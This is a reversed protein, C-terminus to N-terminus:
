SAARFLPRVPARRVWKRWPSSPFSWARRECAGDHHPRFRRRPCFARRAGREGHCYPGFARIRCVVPRMGRRTRHVRRHPDGQLYQGGGVAGRRRSARPAFALGIGRRSEGYNGFRARQRRALCPKGRRTRCSRPEGLGSRERKRAIPGDRLIWREIGRRRPMKREEDFCTSLAIFDDASLVFMDSSLVEFLASTAHPNAVVEALRQMVLVEPASSFISGGAIVCAFGAERLADAFVDARTMKGLLVVMDGAAHGAERLESFRRAIRRAEFRTVDASAIGSRAPYTTLLVSVRTDSGKYPAKVSSEFRSPALSMFEDGFVHKQEFIRDVFALVDRHSRFNDPLEILGEPNAARIRGLHRKYVEVDAGRFRYISQQADGVTCLRCGGEGAMRSIMDVQLQDTDQFEDVMVLKFKHAFEAAIGEHECLARAAQILLDDNDLVGRERKARRYVDFASRAVGLVDELLPEALLCRAEQIIEACRAQLEAAVAKYEKSGFRGSPWPCAACLSLLGKADHTRAALYADVTQKYEDAQLLWTDRSASSKQSLAAEHAEEITEALLRALTSADRARPPVCLCDCGLPSSSAVRLLEILMDEVSGSGFGGSSRAPFESFLADLGEPAVFENAGDLVEAVSARMLEDARAPDLVAFSPDIGLEVAHMRLIRSCMGHITSIWADDVKLAEEAMGEARLTSKVRSKIEGAAKETFTIAMVQEIGDLFAGGDPASGEMLAWAVRQTLTSTKGSGAGASVVLPKDLTTICALQGPKFRSFDM